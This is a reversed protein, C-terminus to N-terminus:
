VCHWYVTDICVIVTYVYVYMCWLVRVSVCISVRVRAYVCLYVWLCVCVCLSTYVCMGMGVYVGYIFFFFNRKSLSFIRNSNKNECSARCRKAGGQKYQTFYATAWAMFNYPPVLLKFIINQCNQTLM